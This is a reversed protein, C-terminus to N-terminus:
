MGGKGVMRGAEAWGRQWKSGLYNLHNCYQLLSYLVEFKPLMSLFVTLNREETGAISM